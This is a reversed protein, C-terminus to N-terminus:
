GQPIFDPCGEVRDQFGKCDLAKACVKCKDKKLPDRSKYQHSNHYEDLLQKRSKM